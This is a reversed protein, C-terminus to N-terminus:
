QQPMTSDQFAQAIASHIAIRYADTSVKFQISNFRGRSILNYAKNFKKRSFPIAVNSELTSFTGSMDKSYAFSILPSLNPFPNETAFQTTYGIKLPVPENFNYARTTVSSPYPSGADLFISSAASYTYPSQYFDNFTFVQGDGADVGVAGSFMLRPGYASFATGFFDSVGWGTWSGVWAKALAHYVLVRNNAIATSGYPVALLYRNGWFIGDCLDLRTKNVQSWLDNIPSSLPLGVDTQTGAQIQALSRVGDRSLFFVDAGVSAISRHSVCGVNGSVVQIVWDAPDQTPDADVYWISREKFVLLRTGFWSYLGTIPDGDGGVRISGAPDWTEGDLIDSFFLTDPTNATDASACFLRQTHATIYRPKTPPNLSVYAVAHAGGGGGISVTPASTYGSGPNTINIAVVNGDNAIVAEATATTGSPPASITVTPVASLNAGQNIVDIRSVKGAMTATGLNANATSIYALGSVGDCYFLKENLQAFYVYSASSDFTAGAIQSWSTTPNGFYLRRNGGTIVAAVVREAASTDFYFGSIIQADTPLNSGFFSTTMTQYQDFIEEYKRTETSGVLSTCGPRTMLVGFDDFDMNIAEAYGTPTINDPRTASVQGGVFSNSGDLLPADDLDQSAQIPM